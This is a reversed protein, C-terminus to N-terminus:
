ISGDLIDFDKNLKSIFELLFLCSKYPVNINWKRFKTMSICIFINIEM